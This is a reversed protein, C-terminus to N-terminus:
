RTHLQRASGPTHARMSLRARERERERERYERYERCVSPTAYVYLSRSFPLYPPSLSSLFLSLLSPPLLHPPILPGSPPTRAPAHRPTVYRNMHCEPPTTPTPFITAPTAQRRPCPRAPTQPSLPAAVSQLSHCVGSILAHELHDSHRIHELSHRIHELHSNGVYM